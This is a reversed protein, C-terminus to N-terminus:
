VQNLLRMKKDMAPDIDIISFVQHDKTGQEGHEQASIAHHVKEKFTNTHQEDQKSIEEDHHTTEVSSSELKSM